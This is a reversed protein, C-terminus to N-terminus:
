AVPVGSIHAAEENGGVALLYEGLPTKNLLVWVLLRDAVIVVLVPM